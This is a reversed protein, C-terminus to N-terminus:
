PAREEAAPVGSDEVPGGAGQDSAPLDEGRAPLREAGPPLGEDGAQVTGVLGEARAEEAFRELESDTRTRDWDLEGALLAAVRRVAETGGAGDSVLERAALLGLRTRRLLVDGISRAQERRAALVVEALLDPLGAVIPQALEGREGALALVERAAYGYRSALAAYSEEPVGEVHPLDEVAVAQGLPIEHTRCPANRADREVLRDVTMKAMRRWTTLKGGTITIM